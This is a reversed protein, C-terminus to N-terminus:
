GMRGRFINNLTEERTFHHLADAILIAVELINEVRRVRGHVAQELLQCDFEEAVQILVRAAQRNAGRLARDIANATRGEPVKFEWEIGDRSADPSKVNRLDLVTLLRVQEGRAALFLAIPINQRSELKGHTEHIDVFCGDVGQFLRFYGPTPEDESGPSM